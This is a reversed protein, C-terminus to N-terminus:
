GQRRGSTDVTWVEGLDAPTDIDFFAGPDSVAVRVVRTPDARVVARAGEPLDAANRLESWLSAGFATPHGGRGGASTPVVILGRGAARLIAAVTGALVRAHDVPWALVVDAAQSDLHDLAVALSSSMGRDPDSNEVIETVGAARAAARTEQAHPRGVVVVVRRCGGACASAAVASLFTRGDPLLLSAKAHGGIRKGAGAALVVAVAEM